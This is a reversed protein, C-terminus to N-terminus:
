CAPARELSTRGSLAPLTVQMVDQIYQAAMQGQVQGKAQEIDNPDM